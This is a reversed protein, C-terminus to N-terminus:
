RDVDIAINIFKSELYSIEIPGFSNNQTTLMVLKSFYIDNKLHEAVSFLVGERYKRVVRSRNFVFTARHTLLRCWYSIEGDDVVNSTPVIVPYTM